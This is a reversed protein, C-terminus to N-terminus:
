GHLHTYIWHRRLFKNYKQRFRFLTIEIIVCKRDIAPGTHTMDAAWLYQGVIWRFSTCDFCKSKGAFDYIAPRFEQNFYAMLGEYRKNDYEVLNAGRTDAFLTRPSPSRMVPQM